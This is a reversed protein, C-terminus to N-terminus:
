AGAAAYCPLYKISGYHLPLLGGAVYKAVDAEAADDDGAGKDEGVLCNAGGAFILMDPRALKKLVGCPNSGSPNSRKKSFRKETNNGSWDFDLYSASSPNSVVGKLVDRIVLPNLNTMMSTCKDEAGHDQHISLRVAPTLYPELSTKSSSGTRKEMIELRCRLLQRNLIHWHVMKMNYALGSVPVVRGGLTTLFAFFQDKAPLQELPRLFRELLDLRPTLGEVQDYPSLREVIDSDSGRFLLVREDLAISNLATEIQGPARFKYKIRDVTDLAAEWKPLAGTMQCAEGEDAFPDNAFLCHLRAQTEGCKTLRLYLRLGIGFPSIPPPTESVLKQRFKLQGRRRACRTM